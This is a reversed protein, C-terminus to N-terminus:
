IFVIALFLALEVEDERPFEKATVTALGHTADGGFTSMAHTVAVVDTPRPTQAILLFKVELLQHCGDDCLGDELGLVPILDDIVDHILHVLKIEVDAM